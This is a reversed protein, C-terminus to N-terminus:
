LAGVSKFLTTFGCSQPLRSIVVNENLNKSHDRTWNIVMVMLSDQGALYIDNFNSQM